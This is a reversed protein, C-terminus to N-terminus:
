EITIEYIKGVNKNKLFPIFDQEFVPTPWWEALHFEQNIIMVMQNNPINTSEENMYGVESMKDKSPGRRWIIEKPRWEIQFYYYDGGFLEQNLAPTRITLAQYQENWRMAEYRKEGHNLYQIPFDFNKPDHCALDWNTLAVIVTDNNKGNYKKSKEKLDHDKYYLATRYPSAKIIEFGIRLSAMRGKAPNPNIKINIENEIHKFRQKLYHYGESNLVVTIERASTKKYQDLLHELLTKGNYLKVFPKMEGMRQSTGAALILVPYM